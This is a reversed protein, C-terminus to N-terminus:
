RTLIDCLAHLFKPIQRWLYEGPLLIGMVPMLSVMMMVVFLVTFIIMSAVHSFVAVFGEALTGSLAGGSTLEMGSQWLKVLIGLSSEYSEKCFIMHGLSGLVIPLLLACTTRLQVPRGHHFLLIVGALLMAPAALWYGYGFLGKLLAAFWDIFIASVNFYSVATFLALALLM